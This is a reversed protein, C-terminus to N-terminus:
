CTHVQPHSTLSARFTPLLHIMILGQTVGVLDYVRVQYVRPGILDTTSTGFSHMTTHLTQPLNNDSTQHSM